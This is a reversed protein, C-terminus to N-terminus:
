FPPEDGNSYDLRQFSVWVCVLFVLRVRLPIEDLMDALEQIVPFSNSTKSKSEAVDGGVAVGDAM